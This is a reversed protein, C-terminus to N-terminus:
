NHCLVAIDRACSLWIWISTQKTSDIVHSSFTRGAELIAPLSVAAWKNRNLYLCPFISGNVAHHLLQYTSVKSSWFSEQSQFMPSKILLIINSNKELLVCQVNRLIACMYWSPFILKIDILKQSDFNVMLPFKKFWSTCFDSCFNEM